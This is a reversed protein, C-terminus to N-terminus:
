PQAFLESQRFVAQLGPLFPNNAGEHHAHFSGVYMRYRMWGAAYHKRFADPPMTCKPTWQEHSQLQGARPPTLAAVVRQGRLSEVPFTTSFRIRFAYGLPKLM